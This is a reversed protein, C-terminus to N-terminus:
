GACLLCWEQIMSKPWWPQPWTGTYGKPPIKPVIRNNKFPNCHGCAQTLNKPDLNGGHIRADVYAM